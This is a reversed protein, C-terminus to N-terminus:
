KYQAKRVHLRSSDGNWLGFKGHQKEIQRGKINYAMWQYNSKMKLSCCCVKLFASEFYLILENSGVKLIEKVAVRYEIFQNSSRKKWIIIARDVWPLFSCVQSNRERESIPHPCSSPSIRLSIRVLVVSAFTDLGEFVLDAQSVSLDSHTVPFSTKFEWNAEGVGASSETGEIKNFNASQCQVDWEHLGIFQITLGIPSHAPVSEADVWQILFKEL